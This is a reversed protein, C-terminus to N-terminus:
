SFSQGSTRMNRRRSRIKAILAQREEEELLRKDEARLEELSLGTLDDDENSDDNRHLQETVAPQPTQQINASSSPIFSAPPTGDVPGNAQASPHMDVTSSSAGALSVSPAREEPQQVVTGASASTMLTQHDMGRELKSPRGPRRKDEPRRKGLLISSKARELQKNNVNNGFRNREIDGLMRPTISSDNALLSEFHSRLYRLRNHGKFQAHTSPPCTHEIVQRVVINGTDSDSSVYIRFPCVPPKPEGEANNNRTLICRFDSRLKDARKVVYSLHNEVAIQEIVRRAEEM